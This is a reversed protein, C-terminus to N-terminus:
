ERSCVCRTSCSLKTAILEDVANGDLFFFIYNRSLQVEGLLLHHSVYKETRLRKIYILHLTCLSSSHLSTSHPTFVQVVYEWLHATLKKQDQLM